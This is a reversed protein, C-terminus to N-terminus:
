PLVQVAENNYEGYADIPKVTVDVKANKALGIIQTELGPIIHGMGIIFELPDNGVNSDIIEKTDADVLQYEMAVVDNNKIM